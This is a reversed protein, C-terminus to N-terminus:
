VKGIAEIEEDLTENYRWDGRPYINFHTALTRGSLASPDSKQSELSTLSQKKLQVFENEPFVPERAVHAALRIAAALNPRTTQFDASLGSVSGAVKLKEFEDALQARTYRTTGRTLMASTLEAVAQQG